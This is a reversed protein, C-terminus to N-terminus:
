DTSSTFILPFSVVTLQPKKKTNVDYQEGTLPSRPLTVKKFMMLCAWIPLTKRKAM